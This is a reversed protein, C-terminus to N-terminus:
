NLNTQNLIEGIKRYEAYGTPFLLKAILPLFTNSFHKVDEKTKITTTGITIFRKEDMGKFINLILTHVYALPISKVKISMDMVPGLTSIV